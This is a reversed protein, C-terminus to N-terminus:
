VGAVGPRVIKRGSAIMLAKIKKMQKEHLGVFADELNSEEMGALTVVGVPVSGAITSGHVDKSVQLFIPVSIFCRWRSSEDPLALDKLTSLTPKGALFARVSANKSAHSIAAKRRVSENILPGASNSYLTLTRDNSRPNLRGWFEIRLYNADLRGGSAEVIGGLTDALLHHAEISDYGTEARERAWAELRSAYSLGLEPDFYDVSPEAMHARCALEVEEVFQASQFHGLPYLIELGLHKGRQSYSEQRKKRLREQEDPTADSAQISPLDHFISFRKKASDKTRILAHVLPLDTLSAGLILVASGDQRFLDSLTKVAAEHTLAYSQEDLVVIGEAAAGPGPVRGHLYTLDVFPVGAQPRRVAHWKSSIVKGTLSSKLTRRRLGPIRSQRFGSKHVDELNTCFDVFENEFHVDYNTTVVSIELGQAAATIALRVTNRLLYGNSWTKRYLIDQLIPFLIKTARQPQNETVLETVISACQEPSSLEALLDVAAAYGNGTGLMGRHNAEALLKEILRKWGMGTRDISVGAGCYVVLNKTSSLTRIAEAVRDSGLFFESGAQPM